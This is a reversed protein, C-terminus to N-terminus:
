IWSEVIVPDDAENRGLNILGPPLCARAQDLTDAIFHDATPGAQDVPMVLHRRAVHKGPHDSPNRTITWISLAAATM